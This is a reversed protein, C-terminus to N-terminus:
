SSRNNGYNIDSRIEKKSSLKDKCIKHIYKWYGESGKPSKITGDEVSIDVALVISKLESDSLKYMGKISNLDTSLNVSTVRDISITDPYLLLTKQEPNLDTGYPNIDMGEPNIESLKPNLDSTRYNTDILLKYNRGLAYYSYTGGIKVTKHKLVGIKCMKKLRRYVTDKKMKTIPIDETVGDYKIWYYKDDSIIKSIMRESDKFKVFWKLILLDRDDLELEIAKEQSFGHISYEM